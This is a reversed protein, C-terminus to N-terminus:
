NVGWCHSEDLVTNSPTHVVIGDSQTLNEDATYTWREGPEFSADGGSNTLNGERFPITMGSAHLVLDDIDLPEGGCYTVTVNGGQVDVDVAGIPAREPGGYTRDLMAAGGVTVAVIVIGTMLITGVVSSVGRNMRSVESEDNM